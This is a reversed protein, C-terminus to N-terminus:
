QKKKVYKVAGGALLAELTAKCREPSSCEDAAFAYPTRGKEEKAETNAGQSILFKIVEAHRNDPDGVYAASHLPTRKQFQRPSGELKANCELVLFKCLKLHSYYAAKYLASSHSDNMVLDDPGDFKREDEDIKGGLALMLKLMRFDTDNSDARASESKCIADVAMLTLTDYCPDPGWEQSNVELGFEVILIKVVDIQNNRVAYKFYEEFDWIRPISKSVHLFKMTVPRRKKLCQNPIYAMVKRLDGNLGHVKHPEKGLPKKHWSDMLLMKRWLSFGVYVILDKHHSLLAVM